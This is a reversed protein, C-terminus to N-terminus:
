KTKTSTTTETVETVKAFFWAVSSIAFAIKSFMNFETVDFTSNFMSFLLYFLAVISIKIALITMPVSKKNIIYM